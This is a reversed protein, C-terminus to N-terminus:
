TPQEPLDPEVAIKLGMAKLVSDLTNLRPNGGRSLTNYLSERAVGASKAVKAMQHAKAVNRLAVL